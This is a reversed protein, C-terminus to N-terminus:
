FVKDHSSAISQTVLIEQTQMNEIYKIYLNFEWLSIPGWPTAPPM